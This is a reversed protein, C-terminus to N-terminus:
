GNELVSQYMDDLNRTMDHVSIWTPMHMQMDRVLEPRDIFSHMAEALAASDGAKVLLGSEGNIIYETIGGMKSAIIPVCSQIYEIGVLGFLEEWISPIVGVDITSNVKSLDEPRYGGQFEVNAGWALRRLNSMYESDGAGYIVLKARSQDLQKFAQILIHVGKHPALGGRYGFRIPLEGNHLAGAKISDVAQTSVPLFHIRSEAVGYHKLIEGSRRSYVHIRNAKNLSAVMAQRRHAYNRALDARATEVFEATTSRSRRFHRLLWSQFRQWRHWVRQAVDFLPGGSLLNWIAVVKPRHTLVSRCDVCRRGESYDTCIAEGNYLLDRQPCVDWYNHITKVVPINRSRCEDIFAACHFTLEHIHVINPEVTELVERSAKLIVDNSVESLPDRRGPRNPSNMLNFLQIGGDLTQRDVRTGGRLDYLGAQFIAPHYGLERSSRLIEWQILAAGGSIRPHFGYGVYLVRIEKKRASEDRTTM